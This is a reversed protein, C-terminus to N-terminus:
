QWRLYEFRRVKTNGEALLTKFEQNILGERIGDGDGAILEMRVGAKRGHDLSSPDRVVHGGVCARGAYAGGLCWNRRQTFEAPM